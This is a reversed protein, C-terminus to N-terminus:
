LIPMLVAYVLFEFFYIYIRSIIPQSFVREQQIIAVMRASSVFPHLLHRREVSEMTAWSQVMLNLCSCNGMQREKATVM